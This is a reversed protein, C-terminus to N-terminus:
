AKQSNYDGWVVLDERDVCKFKKRYTEVEARSSPFIPYIATDPGQTFGLEEDSCYHYNVQRTQTGITGEYGWGYHEIVLEGYRKEEIVETNSDYETLAAAIFLGDDASFKFEQDIAGELTNMMITIDSAHYLVMAKSYPFIMTVIFIFASLCAGMYSVYDSSEGNPTLNLTAQESFEDLTKFKDGIYKRFAKM